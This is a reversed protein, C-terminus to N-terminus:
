LVPTMVWRQPEGVAAPFPRSACFSGGVQDLAPSPFRPRRNPPAAQNTKSQAEGFHFAEATLLTSM